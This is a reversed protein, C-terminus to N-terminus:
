RLGLVEGRRLGLSLAVRYLAELPEGRVANLLARSQEPTLPAIVPKETRPIEVLTAVNYQIRRRKLAQNLADRLVARVNRVTRPALGASTLQNLMVQVHEPMLKNLQYRGIAPTIHSRVIQTYSEYTGVRNRVKVTQELWTDLFAALTQREPAIDAGDAQDHHAAKLKDAVEKRTQGYLYKRKRKGSVWGLDVIACWSGDTRRHISGEGQGRRKGM